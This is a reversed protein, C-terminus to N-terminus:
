PESGHTTVTLGQNYQDQLLRFNRARAVGGLQVRIVEIGWKWGNKRCAVSLKEMIEGHIIQDYTAESLETGIVGMCCDALADQLSCVELLSKKVDHIKWTIVAEFGITKGDKTDTSMSHVRSTRQVIYETITREIKFPILWNFGPQLDRHYIGLRLVIGGEYPDVVTWCKGLDVFQTLLEFLRELM